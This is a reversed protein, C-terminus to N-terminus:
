RPFIEEILALYRASVEDWTKPVPAAALGPSAGELYSRIGAAFAGADRPNAYCAYDGCAARACECDAAVVPVRMLMGEHYSIGFSELLSPLLCVSAEALLRLLERRPVRGLFQIQEGVGRAEAEARLEHCKDRELTVLCKVEPHTRQLQAVISPLLVNNKHPAPSTICLVYPPAKPENRGPIDGVASPVVSVASAPIDWRRCLHTKMPESQVTFLSVGPKCARFYLAALAMKARFAPPLEFDWSEPPYALYAQQVLLLHPVGPWPLSTDGLSFLVDIGKTRIARRIAVNETVVKSGLGERVRFAKFSVDLPSPPEWDWSSPLWAVLEHRTGSRLLADLVGRGVVASGAGRLTGMHLGIKLAASEM